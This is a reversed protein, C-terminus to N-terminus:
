CGDIRRTHGSDRCGAIARPPKALQNKVTGVPESLRHRLGSSLSLLLVQHRELGGAFPFYDLSVSRCRVVTTRGFHLDSQERRADLLEGIMELAVGLIMMRAASKQTQDALTAPQEIIQVRLIKVAIFPQNLLEADAALGLRDSGVPRAAVPSRTVGALRM